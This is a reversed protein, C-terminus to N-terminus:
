KYPRPQMRGAPLIVNNERAYREWQEELQRVMTQRSPALDFQEAPDSVLDYLSWNGREQKAPLDLLKWRGSILARQGFLELGLVRTEDRGQLSEIGQGGAVAIIAQALDTVHLLAPDIQGDRGVGPGSIMLPSRVGGEALTAKFLRFPVSSVQAWAPGYGIWSGRRGYNEYRNDFRNDFWTRTDPGLVDGVFKATDEAAAGNDSMFIVLTNELAGTQRLYDLMRGIHFDMNEVIGAYIEMKRASQRQEDATLSDWPAVKPNRPAASVDEAVIGIAKQRALRQSRLHDYGDSYRGAYRDIWDDPLQLPVHPVQLSLYAFFPRGDKKGMEIENILFDTFNKSSFYDDPLTKVREGNRTMTVKPRQPVLNSMDSFHSGAGGILSLDKEFGHAVPWHDAANGLHWKGAMYTHYGSAQLREPLVQVVNNLHGEYGPKGKQNPAMWVAMNGLGARHHDIGTMLMARTPSCTAAVHFNSYRVGESALSDLVPTNIEGGWAGLDSYGLDDAVILLINPRKDQAEQVAPAAAESYVPALSLVSFVTLCPLIALYTLHQRKNM